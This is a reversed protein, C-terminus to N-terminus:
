ASACRSCHRVPPWSSGSSFEGSGGENVREGVDDAALRTSDRDRHDVASEVRAQHRVTLQVGDESPHRHATANGRRHEVGSALRPDLREHPHSEDIGPERARRLNPNRTHASYVQEYVTADDDFDIAAAPVLTLLTAVVTSIECRM